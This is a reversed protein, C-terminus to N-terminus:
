LTAGIDGIDFSARFVETRFFLHNELPPSLEFAKPQRRFDYLRRISYREDAEEAFSKENRTMFFPTRNSGVTTKVEIFKERGSLDYSAIDYGLGDGLEKSAWSVRKALDMRGASILEGVETEFVLKEGADGLTRNRFDREVPDFKQVLKKVFDPLKKTSPLLLPPAELFLRAPESMGQVPALETSVFRRNLNLFNEVAVILSSQFNEAPRYGTMWELGLLELVASVNQHKFEISGKTRDIQSLLRNRHETKNLAFGRREEDLMAFYDAVLVRSEEDTWDKGYNESEAMGIGWSWM